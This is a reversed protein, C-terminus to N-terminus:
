ICVSRVPRATPGIISTSIADAMQRNQYLGVPIGKLTFLAVWHEYADILLHRPFFQLLLPAARPHQLVSRWSALSVAIVADRWDVSPDLPPM